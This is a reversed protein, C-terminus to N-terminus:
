SVSFTLRKPIMPGTWALSAFHPPWPRLAQRRYIVPLSRHESDAMYDQAARTLKNNKVGRALKRANRAIENLWAVGLIPQEALFLSFDSNPLVQQPCCCRGDRTADELTISAGEQRTYSWCGDTTPWEQSRFRRGLQDAISIFVVRSAGPAYWDVAWMITTYENVAGCILM